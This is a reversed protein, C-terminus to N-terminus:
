RRKQQYIFSTLFRTFLETGIRNVWRELKRLQSQTTSQDTTLKNLIKFIDNKVDKRQDTEIKNFQEMIIEPTFVFNEDQEFVESLAWQCNRLM